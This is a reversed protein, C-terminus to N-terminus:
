TGEGRAAARRMGESVAAREAEALDGKELVFRAFGLYWRAPYDGHAAPLVRALAAFDSKVEAKRGIFFPLHYGSVLRLYRIEAHDPRAAVASDLAPLGAKLHEMKRPPWFDHKAGLVRFAGRYAQLLPDGPALGPPDPGEALVAEGEARRAQDKVALVYLIRLKDMRLDKRSSDAALASDVRRLDALGQARVDKKEALPPPPSPEASGARLPLAGPLALLLALLPGSYRDPGL